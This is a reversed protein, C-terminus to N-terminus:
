YRAPLPALRSEDEDGWQSSLKEPQRRTTVNPSGQPIGTNHPIRITPAQSGLPPSRPFPDPHFGAPPEP